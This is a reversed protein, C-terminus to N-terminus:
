RRRLTLAQLDDNLAQLQDQVAKLVSQKEVLGALTTALEAEAHALAIHAYSSRTPFTFTTANITKESTSKLQPQLDSLEDTKARLLMIYFQLLEVYSTPTVYKFRSFASLFRASLDIDSQYFRRCLHVSANKAAGSLGFEGLFLHAVAQLTNDGLSFIRLRARFVDGIPSMCLVIHLNRKVREIFYNYLTAPTRDGPEGEEQKDSVCREIINLREDDAFLNPVDGFNLLDKVDEIFSEEKIQTDPFLFVTKRNDVCAIVLIMKVLDGFMLRRMDDEELANNSGGDDPAGVTAITKCVVDADARYHVRVAEVLHAFISYRDDDSVLRDYFAPYDEHAWLRAIQDFTGFCHPRCLTIGQVVRSFDRLNFTYHIKAPTPLLHEIIRKYIDLIAAVISQLLSRVEESFDLRGFHLNLIFLFAREMTVNDFSNIVVQNFHARRSSDAAAAPRAYSRTTEMWALALDMAELVRA